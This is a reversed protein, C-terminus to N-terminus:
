RTEESMPPSERKESKKERDRSVPRGGLSQSLDVGPAGKVERSDRDHASRLSRESPLDHRGDRDHDVHRRNNDNEEHAREPDEELEPDEDEHSRVDRPDQIGPELVRGHSPLASPDHTKSPDPNAQDKHNDARQQVSLSTQVSAPAPVPHAVIPPSMSGLSGGGAFSSRFVTSGFGGPTSGSRFSRRGSLGSPPGSDSGAGSEGSPSTAEWESYGSRSGEPMSCRPRWGLATAPKARAAGLLIYPAARELDPSRELVLM